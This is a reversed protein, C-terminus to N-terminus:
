KTPIYEEIKNTIEKIENKSEIKLKNVQQSLHEINDTFQDLRELVERRGVSAMAEENVSYLPSAMNRKLSDLVFENVSMNMNGAAGEVAEWMADTCRFSHLRKVPKKM